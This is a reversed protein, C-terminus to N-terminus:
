GLTLVAARPSEIFNEGIGRIVLDFTNHDMGAFPQTQLPMAAARFMPM